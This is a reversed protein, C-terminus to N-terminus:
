APKRVHVAFMTVSLHIDGAAAGRALDALLKDREAETIVRRAVAMASVRSVLAGAGVSRDQILAQSGTSEV